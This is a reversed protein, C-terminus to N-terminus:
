SSVVSNSYDVEVLKWCLNCVFKIQWCTGGKGQGRGVKWCASTCPMTPRRQSVSCWRWVMRWSGKARRVAPWCSRFLLASVWLCVWNWMSGECGATGSPVQLQKLSLLFSFQLLGWRPHECITPTLYSCSYFLVFCPARLPSQASPLNRPTINVPWSAAGKLLLYSMVSM